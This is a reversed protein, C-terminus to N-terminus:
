QFKECQNEQTHLTYHTTKKENEITKNQQNDSKKEEM